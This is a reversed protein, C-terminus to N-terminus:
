FPLEQEQELELFFKEAKSRDFDGFREKKSAWADAQNRHRASFDLDEGDVGGNWHLCADSENLERFEDSLVHRVPSFRNAVM